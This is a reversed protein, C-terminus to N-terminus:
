GGNAKNLDIKGAGTNIVCYDADEAICFALIALLCAVKWNM